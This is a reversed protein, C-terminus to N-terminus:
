LDLELVIPTHDSAKEKGRPTKDILCNKLKDSM